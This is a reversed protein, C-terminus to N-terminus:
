TRVIAAAAVIARKVVAAAYSSVIIRTGRRKGPFLQSVRCLAVAETASEAGERETKQILLYIYNQSISGERGVHYMEIVNTGDEHCFVVYLGIFIYFKGTDKQLSLIM